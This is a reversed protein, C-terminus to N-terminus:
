RTGREYWAMRDKIKYCTLGTIKLHIGSNQAIWPIYRDGSLHLVFGKKDPATKVTEMGGACVGGALFALVFPLTSYVSRRSARLTM